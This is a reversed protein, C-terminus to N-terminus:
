RCFVCAFWKGNVLHTQTAFVEKETSLLDLTTKLTAADLDELIVHTTQKHESKGPQSQGVVSLSSINKWTGNETYEIEVSDGKNCNPIGEGNYWVNDKSCVGFKGGEKISISKVTIKIKEM